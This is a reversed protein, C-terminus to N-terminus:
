QKKIGIIFAVPLRDVAVADSENADGPKVGGAKRSM